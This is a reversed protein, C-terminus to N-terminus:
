CIKKMINHASISILLAQTDTHTQTHIITLYGREKGKVTQKCQCHKCRRAYKKDRSRSETNQPYTVVGMICWRPLRLFVSRGDAGGGALAGKGDVSHRRKDSSLCPPQSSASEGMLSTSLPFSWDRDAASFPPVVLTPTSWKPPLQTLRLVAPERLYWVLLQEKSVIGSSEQRRLRCFSKRDESLRADHLAPLRSSLQAPEEDLDNRWFVEPSVFLSDATETSPSDTAFLDRGRRGRLTPLQRSMTTSVLSSSSSFSGFHCPREVPQRLALWESCWWGESEDGVEVVEQWKSGEEECTTALDCRELELAPAPPGLGAMLVELRWVSEAGVNTRRQRLEKSIEFLGWSSENWRVDTKRGLTLMLGGCGLVLCLLLRGETQKDTSM